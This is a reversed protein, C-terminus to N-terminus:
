LAVKGRKLFQRSLTHSETLFSTSQREMTKLSVKLKKGPSRWAQITYLCQINRNMYIKLKRCLLGSCLPHTFGM